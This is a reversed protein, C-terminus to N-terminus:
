RPALEGARRLAAMAAAYERWALALSCPLAPARGLAQSDNTLRGRHPSRTSVESTM